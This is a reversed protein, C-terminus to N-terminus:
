KPLRKNLYHLLTRVANTYLMAEPEELLNDNPHAMSRRNRITDLAGVIGSIPNLISEQEHVRQGVHRLGPHQDRILRFLLTIGADEGFPICAGRCVAKLYGHFTTHVRDIGSIPDRNRILTEADTMAREVVASTIVLDPTPVAQVDELTMDIDVAVFRIYARGVTEVAQAMARYQYLHHNADVLAELEIYRKSGVRMYMVAFEDGFDNTGDWLQFPEAALTSAAILEGRDQLHRIADRKTSQWHADDRVAVLTIDRSGSGSAYLRLMTLNIIPQEPGDSSAAGPSKWVTRHEM